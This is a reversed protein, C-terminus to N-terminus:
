RVIFKKGDSTIYFGAPLNQSNTVKMGSITFIDAAKNDDANITDISSRQGDNIDDNSRLIVYATGMTPDNYYVGTVKEIVDPLTLGPIFETIVPLSNNVLLNDSAEDRTITLEDNAYLSVLRNDYVGTALADAVAIKEGTSVDCPEVVYDSAGPDLRFTGNGLYTGAIYGTLLTGEDLVRSFDDTVVMMGTDEDEFFTYGFENSLTVRINASANIVMKTNDPMSAAEALTFVEVGGKSLELPRIIHTAGDDLKYVVNKLSIVPLGNGVGIIGEPLPVRFTNGERTYSGNPTTGQYDDITFVVDAEKFSAANELYLVMMDTNDNIAKYTTAPNESNYFEADKLVPNPLTIDTYAWIVWISGELETSHEGDLSYSTTLIMSGDPSVLPKIELVISSPPDVQNGNEDVFKAGPALADVNYCKGRLDVTVTYGDESLEVPVKMGYESDYGYHLYATLGDPLIPKSFTYTKVGEKSDPAYYSLMWTERFGTESVIKGNQGTSHYTIVDLPNEKDSYTETTGTEDDYYVVEFVEMTFDGPELNQMFDNEGSQDARVVNTTMGYQEYSCIGVEVGNMVVRSRATYVNPTKTEDNADKFYVYMSMTKKLTQPSETKAPYFRSIKPVAAAAALTLFAFTGLM